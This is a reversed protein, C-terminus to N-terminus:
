ANGEPTKAVGVVTEFVDRPRHTFMTLCGKSRRNTVGLHYMFVYM